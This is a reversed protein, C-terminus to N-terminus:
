FLEGAPQARRPADTRAPRSEGGPAAETHRHEVAQRTSDEMNATVGLTLCFIFALDVLFFSNDVLGHALTTTMSAMLGLVLARTGGEPLRRYLPLAIRWFSLVLWGFIAIGGVGL